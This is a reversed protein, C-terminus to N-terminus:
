ESLWCLIYEVVVTVSFCIYKEQNYSRFSGFLLTLFPVLFSYIVLNIVTSITVKEFYLIMDSSPPPTELTVICNKTAQRAYIEERERSRTSFPCLDAVPLIWVLNSDSLPRALLNSSDPPIRNRNQPRFAKLARVMNSLKLM